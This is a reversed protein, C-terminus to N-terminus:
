NVSHVIISFTCIYNYVTFSINRKCIFLGIKETFNLAQIHSAIALQEILTNTM